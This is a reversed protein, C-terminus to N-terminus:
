KNLGNLLEKLDETFPSFSVAGHFPTKIGKAKKILYENSPFYHALYGRTKNPSKEVILNTFSNKNEQKKNIVLFTYTTYEKKVIKIINKTDIYIVEDQSNKHAIDKKTLNLLISIPTFKIDNLAEEITLNKIPSGIQQNKETLDIIEADRECGVMTLLFLVM